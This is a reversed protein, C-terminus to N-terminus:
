RAQNAIKFYILRARPLSAASTEGEFLVANPFHPDSLSFAALSSHLAPAPFL